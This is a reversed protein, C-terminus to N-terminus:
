CGGRKMERAALKRTAAAKPYARQVEAFAGCAQKRQGLKGLSMGLKFLSAPAKGDRPYGKYGGLFSQAAQKYRGQAYYTEGLWYQAKGALKHKKNLNLFTKFGAEALGFRRKLLSDHSRKFLATPSAGSSSGSQNDLAATEVTGPLLSSTVGDDGSASYGSDNKIILQGLIQQSQAPPLEGTVQRDIILESQLPESTEPLVTLDLDDNSSYLDNNSTGQQQFASQSNASPTRQPALSGSRQKRLQNIQGQMKEMRRSISSLQGALNRLQEEIASLRYSTDGGGSANGGGKLGRVEHELRIIREFLANWEASQAFAAPATVLLMFGLVGCAAIQRFFRESM